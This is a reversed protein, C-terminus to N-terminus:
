TPHPSIFHSLHYVLDNPADVYSTCGTFIRLFIMLHQSLVVHSVNSAIGLSLNSPNWVRNRASRAATYPARLYLVM